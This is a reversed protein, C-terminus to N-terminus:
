NPPEIPMGVAVVYMIFTHWLFLYLKKALVFIKLLNFQEENANTNM